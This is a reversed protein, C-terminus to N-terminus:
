RKRYEAEARLWDEAPNGSQYGRAVYYGYAILSIATHPDTTTAPAKTPVIVSTAMNSGAPSQAKAPVSHKVTKVRSAAPTAVAVVPKAAPSKPANVTTKGTVKKDAM